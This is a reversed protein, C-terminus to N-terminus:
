GVLGLNRDDEVSLFWAVLAGRGRKTEVAAPVRECVFPLALRLVLLTGREGGWCGVARECECRMCRCARPM